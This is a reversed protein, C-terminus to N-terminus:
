GRLVCAAGFALPEAPLIINEAAVAKVSIPSPGLGPHSNSEGLIERDRQAEVQSPDPGSTPPPGEGKAAKELKWCWDYIAFRGVEFHQAAKSVTHAAAYELVQAKYSPTYRRTVRSGPTQGTETAAPPSARAASRSSSSPQGGYRHRWTTITAKPVGHKEAAVGVGLQQADLLTAERREVTYSRRARKSTKTM